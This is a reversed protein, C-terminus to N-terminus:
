RKLEAGASEPHVLPAVAIVKVSIRIRAALAPTLNIVLRVKNGEVVFAIM